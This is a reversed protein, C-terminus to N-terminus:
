GETTTTTRKESPVAARPPPSLPTLGLAVRSESERERARLLFAPGLGASLSPRGGVQLPCVQRAKGGGGACTHLALRRAEPLWSPYRTLTLCLMEPRPRCQRFWGRLELTSSPSVLTGCVRVAVQKLGLHDLPLFTPPPPPPSSLILASCYKASSAERQWLM